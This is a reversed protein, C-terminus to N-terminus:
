PEFPVWVLGITLIGSQTDEKVKDFVLGMPM